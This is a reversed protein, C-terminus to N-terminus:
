SATSESWIQHLHVLMKSSITFVTMNQNHLDESHGQCQLYHGLKEAHCMVEHYYVMVGLKTLFFFNFFLNLPEPSVSHVHDPM